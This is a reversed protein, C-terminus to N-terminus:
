QRAVKPISSKGWVIPRGTGFDVGAFRDGYIKKFWAARADQRARLMHARAAKEQAMAAIMAGCFM